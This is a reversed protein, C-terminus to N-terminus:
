GRRGCGRRDDVRLWPTHQSALFAGAIVAAGLVLWAATSVAFPHPLPPPAGTPRRQRRGKRVAPGPPVMARGDGAATRGIHESL